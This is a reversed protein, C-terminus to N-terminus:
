AWQSCRSGRERASECSCFSRRRVLAGAVAQIAILSIPSHTLLLLPSCLYLIPSFHHLFHSGGEPTDGFGSFPTAITQVFEGLDAGSHYAAYRDAGLLTLVVAYVICAATLVIVPM